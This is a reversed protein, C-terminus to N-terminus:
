GSSFHAPEYQFGEVSPRARVLRQLQRILGDAGTVVFGRRELWHVAFGFMGEVSFPSLVTGIETTELVVQGFWCLAQGRAVLWLNM